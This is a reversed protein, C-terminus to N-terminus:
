NAIETEDIKVVDGAYPLLEESSTSHVPDLIM